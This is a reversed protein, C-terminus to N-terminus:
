KGGDHQTQRGGDHQSQGGREDGHEAPHAHEAAQLRSASGPTCSLIPLRWRVGAFLDDADDTLGWGIRVDLVADNSVYFDVGINFVGVTFNPDANRSVVQYYEFYSTVRETLARGPRRRTWSLARGSADAVTSVDERAAKPLPRSLFAPPLGVGGWAVLLGPKATRFDRANADHSRWRCTTASDTAWGADIRSPRAPGRAVSAWPVPVAAITCSVRLVRRLRFKPLISQEGSRNLTSASAWPVVM